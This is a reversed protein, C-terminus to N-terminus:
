WHQVGRNEDDTCRPRFSSSFLFFVHKRGDSIEHSPSAITRTYCRETWWMIIPAATCRPMWCGVNMMMMLMMLLSPALWWRRDFFLFLSWVVLSSLFPFSFFCPLLNKAIAIHIIRIHHHNSESPRPHASASLGAAAARVLMAMIVSRVLGDDSSSVVHECPFADCSSSTSRRWTPTASPAPPPPHFIILGISTRHFYFLIGLWCFARPGLPPYAQTYKPSLLLGVQGSAM